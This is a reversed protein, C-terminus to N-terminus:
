LDGALIDMAKHTPYMGNGFYAHGEESVVNAAILEDWSAILQTFISGSKYLGPALIQEESRTYQSINDQILVKEM